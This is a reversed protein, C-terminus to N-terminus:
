LFYDTGTWVQLGNFFGTVHPQEISALSCKPNSTKASVDPVDAIDVFDTVSVPVQTTVSCSTASGTIQCSLPTNRTNKRLIFTRSVTGGPPFLTYCTMTTFIADTPMIARANNETATMGRDGSPAMYTTSVASDQTSNSSSMFFGTILPDTARFRFGFSLARTTPTTTATENLDLLDGAVVAVSHTSDNNGTNTDAIATTLTTSAANKMLTWLYSTGAGPSAATTVYLKDLTGPISVPQTTSAEIATTQAVFVGNALSTFGQGSTVTQGSPRGILIMDGATTPTYVAGTALTSLAPTSVPNQAWSVRDTAVVALSGSIVCRNATDAVTCSLTTSAENLMITFSRSTGAGPATNLNFVFGSLTGAAPITGISTNANQQAAVAGNEFLSGFTEATQSLNAALGGLLPQAFAPTALFFLVGLLLKKM